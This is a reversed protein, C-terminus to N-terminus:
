MNKTDLSSNKAFLDQLMQPNNNIKLNWRFKKSMGAKKWCPKLLPTGGTWLIM